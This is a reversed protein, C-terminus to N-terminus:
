PSRHFALVDLTTALEFNGTYIMGPRSSYHQHHQRNITINVVQRQHGNKLTPFLHSYREDGVDTVLM